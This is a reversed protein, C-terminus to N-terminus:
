DYLRLIRVSSPLSSLHVSRLTGLEELHPPLSLETFQAPLAPIFSLSLLNSPLKGKLDGWSGYYYLSRLHSPLKLPLPTERLYLSQLEAPLGEPRPCGSLDLSRLPPPLDKWSKRECGVVTLSELSSPLQKLDDEGADIIKLAKLKPPLRDIRV